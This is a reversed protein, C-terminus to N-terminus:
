VDGGGVVEVEVHEALSMVGGSGAVRSTGLCQLKYCSLVEPWTHSLIHFVVNPIAMGAM